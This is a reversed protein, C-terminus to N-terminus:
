DKSLKINNIYIAYEERVWKDVDSRYKNAKRNGSVIESLYSQAIGAKEAVRALIGVRLRTAYIGLISLDLTNIQELSLNLAEEKTVRINTTNM